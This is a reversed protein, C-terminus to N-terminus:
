EEYDALAKLVHMKHRNNMMVGLIVTPGSTMKVPGTKAIAVAATIAGTTVTM